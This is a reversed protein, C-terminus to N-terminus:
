SKMEIELRQETDLEVKNKIAWAPELEISELNM